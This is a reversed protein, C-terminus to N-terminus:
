QSRTQVQLTQGSRLPRAQEQSLILFHAPHRLIVYVENWEITPPCLLRACEDHDWGWVSSPNKSPGPSFSHWDGIAKKVSSAHSRRTDNRATDLLSTINAADSGERALETRVTPSFTVLSRFSNVYTKDRDATHSAASNFILFVCPEPLASTDAASAELGKQVILSYPRWM